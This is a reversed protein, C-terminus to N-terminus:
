NNESKNEQEKIEKEIKKNTDDIEKKTKESKINKDNEEEKNEGLIEFLKEQIIYAEATHKLEEENRKPYQQKLQEVYKEIEEKTAEIKEQKRIETFVFSLKLRNEILKREEEELEKETKKIQKLYDELSIKAKELEQDREEIFNYLEENVLLEPLNIKSSEIIKDIIKERTVEKQNIKKEHELQRKIEAKFEEVNKFDGFQKIFEETIEPKLSKIETEKNKESNQKEQSVMMNQLNKIADDIEKETVNENKTGKIIKESIEKYNPLTIKPYLPLRVIFSVPSKLAIKTITAEPAGIISINQDNIIEKIADEFTDRAIDELLEIENIHERVINEPVKGKRFGPMSFHEAERLIERNMKEELIDFPMEAEFSIEGNKEELKKLNSYYKAM